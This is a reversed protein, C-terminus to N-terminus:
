ISTFLWSLCLKQTANLKWVVDESMKWHSLM